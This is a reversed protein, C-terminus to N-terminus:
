PSTYLMIHYLKDTVQPLDTNKVPDEPKRWWYFKDGRYLQFITSLPTLCWCVYLCVWFFNSSVSIAYISTTGTTNRENFIRYSLRFVNMTIELVSIGYHNGLCNNRDYFRRLSSKLKVVDLFGQNLLKWTLLLSRSSIRISVAVDPM